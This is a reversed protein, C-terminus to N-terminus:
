YMETGWYILYCFNLKILLIYLVVLLNYKGYWSGFVL